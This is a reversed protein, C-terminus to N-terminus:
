RITRPMRCPTARRTPPSASPRRLVKTRPDYHDTLRGAVPEVLVDSVGAADLILRAAAAGSLPAPQRSAAAFSTHVRWQAWMALLMAPAIWVLYMPDFFM